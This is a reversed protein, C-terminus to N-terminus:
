IAPVSRIKIIGAKVESGPKPQDPIFDFAITYTSDIIEGNEIAPIWQGTLFPVVALIEDRLTVHYSNKEIRGKSVRGEKDIQFSVVISSSDRLPPLLLPLELHRHALKQLDKEGGLFIARHSKNLQLSDSLNTDKLLIKKSFNYKQQLGQVSDYTSWEGIRNDNLYQGVVRPRLLDALIVRENDNSMIKEAQTHSPLHYDVWVGNKKGNVFHGRTLLGYVKHFSYRKYFYYDWDGDPLGERYSGSELLFTDKKPTVVYRVYPGHKIKSNNPSVAYAEEIIDKARRPDAPQALVTFGSFLLLILFYRQMAIASNRFCAFM